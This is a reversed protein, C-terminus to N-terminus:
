FSLWRSSKETLLKALVSTDVTDVSDINKSERAEMAAEAEEVTDFYFHNDLQETVLVVLEPDHNKNSPSFQWEIIEELEEKAFYRGEASLEKIDEVTYEPPDIYIGLQVAMFVEHMIKEDHEDLKSRLKEIYDKQEQSLREPHEKLVWFMRSFKDYQKILAKKLEMPEIHWLSRISLAVRDSIKVNRSM